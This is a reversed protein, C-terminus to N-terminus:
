ISPLAGGSQRQEDLPHNEPEEDWIYDQYRNKAYVTTLLRIREDKEVTALDQGGRQRQGEPSDNETEIRQLPNFPRLGKQSRLM